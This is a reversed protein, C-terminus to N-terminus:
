QIVDDDGVRRSATITKYGTSTNVGAFSSTSINRYGLITLNDRVLSAISDCVTKGQTKNVYVRIEIKSIYGRIGQETTTATENGSFDFSITPFKDDKILTSDQTFYLDPYTSSLKKSLRTKIITYIRNELTQIWDM